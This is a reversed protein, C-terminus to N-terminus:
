KTVSAFLAEWKGAIRMVAFRERAEVAREAFRARLGADGMVRSLAATLANSDDQPVLLGDVEHRVIERPGTECDVSVCPLGYSLAEALTNGFGEFRSTMVYADALAYWAGINGVAGPLVVRDALGLDNRQHELKARLPGEGLIILRWESHVTQLRAFATLLRDFAKAHALRGVALLVKEGGIAKKVGAPKVEPPGDPIPYAIPNPMVPVRRAGTNARIWTASEDTLASVAALQPYVIRRLAAWPQGLPSMPPHTHESGVPVIGTGMCALGCLINCSPMFGLAIDPKEKKLVSRLARVRLLNNLLGSLAGDSGGAKNLAIRRVRDSVPYFDQDQGAVTILTIRWGKAAWHNALTTAVREAGGSSLSGIVMCLKM